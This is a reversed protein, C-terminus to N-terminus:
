MSSESAVPVGMVIDCPFDEGPLKYRLTNRIFGMRQPFAYYEVKLGLKAYLDKRYVQVTVEGDYPMGYLKGDISNAGRLKRKGTETAFMPLVASGIM